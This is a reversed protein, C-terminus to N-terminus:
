KALECLVDDIKDNELGYWIPLCIHRSGIQYPDNGLQYDYVPSTRSIIKKFSETPNGLSDKIIFKYLNSRHGDATPHIFEWNYTKCAEIYQNAINYKNSIIEDIERCVAFSSLAALESMRINVGLDLEQEFRDYIAYKEIKEFMMEDNTVILGGEGAPIAKTAYLSYVGAVGYLGSHRGKLTSGLSHACDEVLAINNNKCYDAILEIDPNVWGGIHTILFVCESPKDVKKVFDKVQDFSPMLYELSCDVSGIFELGSTIATTKVGYMTNGQIFIKTKGYKSRLINLIALIGAGNSNCPTAFHAGTYNKTWGALTKNWEGEALNGSAFIDKYNAEFFLQSAKPLKIM